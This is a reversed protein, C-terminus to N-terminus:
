PTHSTAVATPLTLRRPLAQRPPPQRLAASYQRTDYLRRARSRERVEQLQAGNPQVLITGVSPGTGAEHAAKGEELLSNDTGQTTRRRCSAAPPCLLWM